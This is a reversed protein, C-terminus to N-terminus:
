SQTSNQLRASTSCSQRGTVPIILSRPVQCHISTGYDPQSSVRLTAGISNARHQMVRLGMGNSETAPEKFGQGFDHVTLHLRQADMGLEMKIQRAKGHELANHIAEQAIRYLALAIDPKVPLDNQVCHFDCEIEFVEQTQRVLKKLAPVLGILEFEEADLASALRRTQSVAESLLQVIKNADVAYSWAEEAMMSQELEKAKFAIAALHQGLGDHLEHGIRRRENATVELIEKELRKQLTIDEAIGTIRHIRGSEDRMPLARDHIWLESGDPRHIRYEEDYNGKTQKEISAQLIRKQDDEHIAEMWGRPSSYLSRCTRGWIAEYSPSIYIVERTVSDIMWFVERMSQTIQRVLLENWEFSNDCELPDPSISPVNRITSNTQM